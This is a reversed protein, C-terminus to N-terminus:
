VVAHAAGARRHEPRAPQVRQVGREGVAGGADGDCLGACVQGRSRGAGSDAARRRRLWCHAVPGEGNAASVGCEIQVSCDAPQVAHAHRRARPQARVQLQPSIFDDQYGQMANACVPDLLWANGQRVALTRLRSKREDDNALLVYSPTRHFLAAAVAVTYPVMFVLQKVYKIFGLYRNGRQQVAAFMDAFTMGCDSPPPMLVPEGKRMAKAVAMSTPEEKPANKRGASGPRWRRSDRQKVEGILRTARAKGYVDVLIAAVEPKPWGEEHPALLRFSKTSSGSELKYMGDDEVNNHAIVYTVALLYWASCALGGDTFARAWAECSVMTWQGNVENMQLYPNGLPHEAGGKIQIQLHSAHPDPSGATAYGGNALWRVLKAKSHARPPVGLARDDGRKGGDGFKRQVPAPALLRDKVDARTRMGAIVAGCSEM